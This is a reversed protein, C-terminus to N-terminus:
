KQKLWKIFVGGKMIIDIENQECFGNLLLRKEIEEKPLNDPLGTWKFHVRNLDYIRSIIKTKDM